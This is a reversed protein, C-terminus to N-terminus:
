NLDLKHTTKTKLGYSLFVENISNLIDQSEEKDMDIVFSDYVYLVIKSNKGELIKHIDNLIKINTSTELEQIYYNFLKSPNMNDSPFTIGSTTILEGKNWLVWLENILKEIKVFYELDKYNSFVSGYIQKFTLEKAKEYSTGYLKAFHEHINPETFTYNILKAILTPHYASIDIEVFESNSPIFTTKCGNSKNLALFNVNNFANSPRKTLTNLNYNGYIKGDKISFKSNDVNFYTKFEKEKIKIGNKEISLFAKPAEDNYFKNYPRGILHKIQEYILECKEFHKVVTIYSNIYSINGRLNYQKDIHTHTKNVKVIEINNLDIVQSKVDFFYLFQKKDRVYITAISDLLRDIHTKCVPFVDNHTISTIYGKENYPKIYLLSIQTLASHFNDNFTIIEVFVDALKKDILENIQSETEIIYYM